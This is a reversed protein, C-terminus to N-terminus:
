GVESQLIMGPDLAVRIESAESHVPTVGESEAWAEYGESLRDLELYARSILGADSHVAWCEYYEFAFNILPEGEEQEIRMGLYEFAGACENGVVSEVLDLFEAKADLVGTKYYERDDEGAFTFRGFVDDGLSEAFQDYTACGVFAAAASDACRGITTRWEAFPRVALVRSSTAGVQENHWTAVTQRVGLALDYILQITDRVDASLRVGLCSGLAPKDGACVEMFAELEQKATALTQFCIGDDSSASELIHKLAHRLNNEAVRAEVRKVSKLVQDVKDSVRDVGLALQGLQKRAQRVERLTTAAIAIVGATALLNAGALGLSLAGPGSVAGSLAQSAQAAEPPLFAMNAPNYIPGNKGIVQYVMRGVQGDGLVEFPVKM